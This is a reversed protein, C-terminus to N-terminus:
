PQCVQYPNASLSAIENPSLARNYILIQWMKGSFFQGPTYDIDVAGVLLRRNRSSPGIGDAQGSLKGDVYVRWTTGDYSGAATIRKGVIDDSTKAGYNNGTYTDFVLKGTTQEVYLQWETGSGDYGKSIIQGAASASTCLVKAVVTLRSFGGLVNGCDIYGSGSNTICDTGYVINSLTGFAGNVINQAKRGAGENFLWCGVLGQVSWHGDARLPTGLPPKTTWDRNIPTWM